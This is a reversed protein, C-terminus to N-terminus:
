FSTRSRLIKLDVSFLSNKIWCQIDHIKSSSKFGKFSKTCHNIIGYIIGVEKQFDETYYISISLLFVCFLFLLRNGFQVLLCTKNWYSYFSMSKGQNSDSKCFLPMGMIRVYFRNRSYTSEKECWFIKESNALTLYSSCNLAARVYPSISRAGGEVQLFEDLFARNM